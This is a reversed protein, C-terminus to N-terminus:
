KALLELPDNFLLHVVGGESIAAHLVLLQYDQMLDLARGHCNLIWRSPTFSPDVAEASVSIHLLTQNIRGEYERSLIFRYGDETDFVQARRTGPRGPGCYGAVFVQQLADPVRAVLDTWSEEQLPLTPM